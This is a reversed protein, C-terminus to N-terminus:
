RLLSSPERFPRLIIASESVVGVPQAAIVGLVWDALVDVRYDAVITLNACWGRARGARHFCALVDWLRVDVPIGTPAGIPARVRKVAVKVAPPFTLAASVSNMCVSLAAKNYGFAGADMWASEVFKRADAIANLKTTWETWTMDDAYYATKPAPLPAFPM